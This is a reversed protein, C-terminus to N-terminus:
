HSARLEDDLPAIRVGLVFVILTLLTPLLADFGNAANTLEVALALLAGVEKAPATLV